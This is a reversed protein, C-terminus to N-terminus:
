PQLGTRIKAMFESVEGAEWHLLKLEANRDTGKPLWCCAAVFVACCLGPSTVVSPEKLAKQGPQPTTLSQAARFLWQPPEAFNLLCSSTESRSFSTEFPATRFRATTSSTVQHCQCRATLLTTFPPRAAPAADQHGPKRRDQFTDGVVLDRLPTDSKCSSCRRCRRSLITDCAVCAARDLHCRKRPHATTWRKQVMHLM